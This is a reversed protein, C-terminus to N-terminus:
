LAPYDIEWAGNDTGDQAAKSSIQADAEPNHRGPSVGRVHRPWSLTAGFYLVM